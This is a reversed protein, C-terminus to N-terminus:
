RKSLAKRNYPLKALWRSARALNAGVLYVLAYYLAFLTAGAAFGAVALLELGHPNHALGDLAARISGWGGALTHLISAVQANLSAVLAPPGYVQVGRLGVLMALWMVFAARGVPKFPDPHPDGRGAWALARRVAADQVEAERRIREEQAADEDAFREAEEPADIALGQRRM